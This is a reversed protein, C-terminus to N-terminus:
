VDSEIEPQTSLLKIFDTGRDRVAKHDGVHRPGLLYKSVPNELIVARDGTLITM